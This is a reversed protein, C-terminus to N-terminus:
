NFIALPSIFIPRTTLLAVIIQCGLSCVNGFHKKNQKRYYVSLTFNHLIITKVAWTKASFLIKKAEFNVTQSACFTFITKKFVAWAALPAFKKKYFM